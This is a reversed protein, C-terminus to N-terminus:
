DKWLILPFILCTQREYLIASKHKITKTEPEDCFYDQAHKPPSHLIVKENIDTKGYGRDLARLAMQTESNLISPLTPSDSLYHAVNVDRPSDPGTIGLWM